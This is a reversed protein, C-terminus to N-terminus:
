RKEPIRERLYDRLFRVVEPHHMPVDGLRDSLDETDLEFGDGDCRYTIRVCRGDATVLINLFTAALDGFPPLDIHSRRFTATVSTGIGLTSEVEFRGDCHQAVERLLPIGLGVTQKPKSSFFGHRVSELTREDMGAGDDSVRLMLEDAADNCLVAIEITNAQASYANQVLDLVHM